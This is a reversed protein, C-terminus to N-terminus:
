QQLETYVLHAWEENQFYGKKIEIKINETILCSHNIAAVTKRGHVQVM